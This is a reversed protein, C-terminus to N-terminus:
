HVVIRIVFQHLPEFHYVLIWTPELTKSPWVWGERHAMKPSAIDLDIYSPLKTKSYKRINVQKNISVNSMVTINLLYRTVEAWFSWVIIYKRSKNEWFFGYLWIQIRFIDVWQPRSVCIHTLLRIMVPGSLPKDSPRRCAMIQILAPINNIPGKSVFKLSIQISILVNENLFICKFIDDPFHCGNQRQRLINFTDAPTGPRMGPLISSIRSCTVFNQTTLRVNLFTSNM